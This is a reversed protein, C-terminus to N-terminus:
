PNAKPRPRPSISTAEAKFTRAKAKYETAKNVDRTIGLPLIL